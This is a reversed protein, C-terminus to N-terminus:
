PIITEETNESRRDQWQMRANKQNRRRKRKRTAESMVSRHVNIYFAYWLLGLPRVDPTRKQFSQISADVCRFILWQKRIFSTIFAEGEKRRLLFFFVVSRSHVAEKNWYWVLSSSQSSIPTSSVSVYYPKTLLECDMHRFAATTNNRRRCTM